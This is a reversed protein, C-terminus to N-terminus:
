NPEARSTTDLVRAGYTVPGDDEPDLDAPAFAGVGRFHALVARAQEETARTGLPEFVTVALERLDEGIGMIIMVVDGAEIVWCMAELLDSSGDFAVPTSWGEPLEDPLLARVAALYDNRPEDVWKALKDPVTLAGLTEYPLAVWTRAAPYKKAIFTPATLLEAFPGVFRFQALIDAVHEDAVRRQLDRSTLAVYLVTGIEDDDFVWWSIAADAAFALWSSSLKPSFPRTWGAPHPEPLFELARRLCRDRDPSPPMRSKSQEPREDHIPELWIAFACGFLATMELLFGALGVAGRRIGIRWAGWAVLVLGLAALGQFLARALRRRRDARRAEEAPSPVSTAM